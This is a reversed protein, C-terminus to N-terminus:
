LKLSFLGIKKERRDRAVIFVLPSAFPEEQCNPLMFTIVFAKADVGNATLDGEERMRPFFLCAYEFEFVLAVCFPTSKLIRRLM